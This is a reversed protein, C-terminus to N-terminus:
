IEPISTLRLRRSSAVRDLMQHRHLTRTQKDNM